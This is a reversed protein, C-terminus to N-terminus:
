KGKRHKDAAPGPSFPPSRRWGVIALLIAGAVDRFDQSWLDRLLRRYDLIAITLGVTGIGILAGQPKARIEGSLM